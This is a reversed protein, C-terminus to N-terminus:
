QGDAGADGDADVRRDAIVRVQESISESTPANFNVGDEVTWEKGLTVAESLAQWEDDIRRRWVGLVAGHRSKEMKPGIPLKVQISLWSLRLGFWRPERRLPLKIVLSDGARYRGDIERTDGLQVLPADIPVRAYHAFTSGLDHTEPMM